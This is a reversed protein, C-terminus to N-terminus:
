ASLAEVAKKLELKCAKTMAGATAVRALDLAGLADGSAEYADACQVFAKEGMRGAESGTPVTAALANFEDQLLGTLTAVLSRNEAVQQDKTLAILATTFREELESIRALAPVGTIKWWTTHALVTTTTSPKPATTEPAVPTEDSGPGCATVALLCGVLGASALTAVRGPKTEARRSRLIGGVAWAIGLVVVSAALLLALNASM